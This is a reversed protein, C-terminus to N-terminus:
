RIIVPTGVAVNEFMWAIDEDRMRICGHTSAQGISSPDDTGHIMYGDGLDLAFEGLEGDIRRNETGLPPIFLRDDFVLHEGIPLPEYIKDPFILGARGDRVVLRRGQSLSVSGKAPLRQLRLGEARAVEAYHWDPPRWIPNDVKRLVQRRGRPTQFRWAEGGYRLTMGTAVGVPAIFITDRGILAALTRQDISIVIRMRPDRALRLSRDAQAAAAARRVSETRLAAYSTPQIPASRASRTIPVVAAEPVTTPPWLRTSAGLPLSACASTSTAFTLAVVLLCHQRVRAGPSSM